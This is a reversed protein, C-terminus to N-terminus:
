DVWPDEDREYSEYCHVCMDIGASTFALGCNCCNYPENPTDTFEWHDTWRPWIGPDFPDVNAEYTDNCRKCLGTPGPSKTRGCNCCHHDDDWFQMAHRAGGNGPLWRAGPVVHDQIFNAAEDPPNNLNNNPGQGIFYKLGIFHDFSPNEDPLDPDSTTDDGDVIYQM